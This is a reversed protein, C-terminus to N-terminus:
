YKPDFKFGIVDLIEPIDETPATTDLKDGKILSSFEPHVESLHMMPKSYAVNINKLVNPTAESSSPEITGVIYDPQKCRDMHVVDIYIRSGSEYEFRYRHTLTAFYLELERCLPSYTECLENVDQEVLTKKLESLDLNHSKIHTDEVTVEKYTWISNEDDLEEETGCLEYDIRRRILVNANKLLKFDSTDYYFEMKSWELVFSGLRLLSKITSLDVHFHIKRVVQKKCM